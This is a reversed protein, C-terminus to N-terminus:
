AVEKIDSLNGMQDISGVFATAAAEGIADLYDFKVEVKIGHKLADSSIDFEVRKHHEEAWKYFLTDTYIYCKQSVQEGLARVSVEVNSITNKGNVFELRYFHGKIGSTVSVTRSVPVIIPQANIKEKLYNRKSQDILHALEERTAEAIITQQAVSAKLEDAQLMLAKEQQALAETNQSIEKSQQFYGVVLWLFALPAFVGALFDGLENLSLSRLTNNSDYIYVVICLGWIVSIIGAVIKSM